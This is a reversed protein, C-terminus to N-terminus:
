LMEFFVTMVTVSLNLRQIVTLVTFVVRCVAISLLKLVNVSSSKCCKHFGVM